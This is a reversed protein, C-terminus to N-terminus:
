EERSKQDLLWYTIGLALIVIGTAAIFPWDLKKFDFVIVKRAIAMLATAIVLKVPIVDSRLYLTINVFIEIAILVALFAGFTVFIDSLDLLFRPPAMLRNYLTWVVDAIGWLIVMTMLVALVKVAWQIIHHLFRILPDEHHLPLESHQDRKVLEERVHHTLTDIIAQQRKFLEPSVGMSQAISQFDSDSLRAFAMNFEGFQRQEIPIKEILHVHHHRPDKRIRRFLQNVAPEPGELVQLFMDNGYYLVGTIDLTGNNARCKALLANLEEDSFERAAQSIYSLRILM